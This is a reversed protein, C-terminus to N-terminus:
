TVHTCFTTSCANMTLGRNILLQELKGHMYSSAM